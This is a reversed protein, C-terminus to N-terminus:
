GSHTLPSEIRGFPRSVKFSGKVWHATGESLFRNLMKLLEKDAKKEYMQSHRLNNHKIFLEDCARYVLYLHHSSPFEPVDTDDLMMPPQYIYRIQVKTDSSQRPYLRIRQYNGGHEPRRTGTALYSVALALASMTTTAEDVDANTVKWFAQSGPKKIYVRKYLASDTGTNQLGSVDIGGPSALTVSTSPSYNSERNKTRFTYCVEYTGAPLSGGVAALTPATIPQSVTFDDHAVWDSSRGTNSYRLDLEEDVHRSINAYSLTTSNVDRVGMALTVVLDTPLDIFRHKVTVTLGTDNASASLGELVAVTASRIRQVVYEGDDAASTTGSVELIQGEMWNEFFPVSITITATGIATTGTANEVDTYATVEVTKQAFKWKKDTFFDMYLQNLLNTVENKYTQVDPDFDLISGVMSRHEALNM